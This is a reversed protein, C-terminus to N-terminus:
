QESDVTEDRSRLWLITAALTWLIMTYSHLRLTASWLNGWVPSIANSVALVYFLTAHVGLTLPFILYGWRSPWRWGIYITTALIGVASLLALVQITDTIRRIANPDITM